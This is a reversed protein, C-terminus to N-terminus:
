DAWSGAHGMGLRCREGFSQELCVVLLHDMGSTAHERAGIPAGATAPQAGTLCGAWCSGRM